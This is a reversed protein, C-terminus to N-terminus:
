SNGGEKNFASVYLRDRDKDYGTVVVEAGEPIPAEHTYCVLRIVRGGSDKIRAEGFEATVKSSIVVGMSGVLDARASAVGSAAPILRAIIRVVAAALFFCAVLAVPITVYLPLKLSAGVMGTIGFMTLLTQWVISLPM